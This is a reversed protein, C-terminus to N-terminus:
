SKYSIFDINEMQFIENQYKYKVILEGINIMDAGVRVRAYLTNDKIEYTTNGEEWGVGVTAYPPTLIGKKKVIFRKNKLTIEFHEPFETAKVSKYLIIIPNEVLIEDFVPSQKVVHVEEDYVGTGYGKCLHVIIEGIGDKDLDSIELKPAYTPNIVNEWKYFKKAGDIELIFGVYMGSSKDEKVYYLKIDSHPIEAILGNEDVDHIGNQKIDYNYIYNNNSITNINGYPYFPLLCMLVIPLGIFKKHM